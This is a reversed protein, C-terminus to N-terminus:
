KALNIANNVGSIVMQVSIVTIILGMMRTIVKIIGPKLFKMIKEGSVFFLYTILCVIAFVAVVILTHQLSSDSGTFNMATSITGPGALIPIALPSIAVDDSDENDEQKPHHIESQNGHLLEYGVLFVLIGGAIQFAPLTIGFVKFIVSGFLAFAAVIFFALTTSKLATKKQDKDSLDKVLGIFIPTNGIPNMIAFFGMAVTTSFVLINQM